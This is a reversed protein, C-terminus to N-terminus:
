RANVNEEALWMAHCGLRLSGLLQLNGFNHGLRQAEWKDGLIIRQKRTEGVGDGM